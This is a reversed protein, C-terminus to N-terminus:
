ARLESYGGSIADRYDYNAAMQEDCLLVPAPSAYIMVLKLVSDIVDESLFYIQGWCKRVIEKTRQEAVLIGSRVIL